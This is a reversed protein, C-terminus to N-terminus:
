TMLLVTRFCMSNEIDAPLRTRRLNRKLKKRINKQVGIETSYWPACPRQVVQRTRKLAYVDFTSKLVRHYSDGLGDNM